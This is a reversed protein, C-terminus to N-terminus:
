VYPPSRGVGRMNEQNIEPSSFNVFLRVQRSIQYRALIKGAQTQRRTAYGRTGAVLGAHSGARSAQLSGAVM